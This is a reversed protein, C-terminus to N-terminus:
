TKNLLTLLVKRLRQLQARVTLLVRHDSIRIDLGCQLKSDRYVPQGHGDGDSEADLLERLMWDQIISTTYQAMQLKVFRHATNWSNQVLKTVRKSSLKSRRLIDIVVTMTDHNSKIEPHDAKINLVADGILLIDNKANLVLSMLFLSFAYPEILLDLREASLTGSDMYYEGVLSRMVLVRILHLADVLQKIQGQAEKSVAGNKFDEAGKVTEMLDQLTIWMGDVPNHRLCFGYDLFLIFHPLVESAYEVFLQRGSQVGEAAAVKFEFFEGDASTFSTVDVAMIDRAYQNQKWSNLDLAVEKLNDNFNFLDGFPVLSKVKQHHIMVAFSRSWVISTAWLWHHLTFELVQDMYSISQLKAEIEAFSERLSQIRIKLFHGVKSSQLHGDIDDNSWFLPMALDHQMQDISPLCELYPRWFSHANQHELLLGLSLTDVPGLDSFAAKQPQPLM